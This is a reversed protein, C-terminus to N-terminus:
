AAVVDITIPFEVDAHPKVVVSHVGVTRVPQGMTLMKRDLEVSTQAQVAEVIEGASVSGFLKGEGSARASIQISQSVLTKALEEAAEREKANRQQWARRMSEAQATVGPTAQQALGKPILSNRAYGDAVNVIDGRGGLGPIQEHLVVKM